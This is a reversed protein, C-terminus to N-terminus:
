RTRSKRTGERRAVNKRPQQAAEEALYKLDWDVQVPYYRVMLEKVLPESQEAPLRERALGVTAVRLSNWDTEPKPEASATVAVDGFIDQRDPQEYGKELYQVVYEAWRSGEHDAVILRYLDRVLEDGYEACADIIRDPQFSHHLRILSLIYNRSQSDNQLDLAGGRYPLLDQESVEAAHKGFPPDLDLRFDQKDVTPWFRRHDGSQAFAVYRQAAEAPSLASISDREAYFDDRLKDAGINLGKIFEWRAGVKKRIDHLRAAARERESISPWLWELMTVVHGIHEEVSILVLQSVLGPKEQSRVQIIKGPVFLAPNANPIM